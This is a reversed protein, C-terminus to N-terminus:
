VKFRARSRLRVVYTLSSRRINADLSCSIWVGPEVWCSCESLWFWESLKLSSGDSLQSWVVHASSDQLQRWWLIYRMSIIFPVVLDSCLIGHRHTNQRSQYEMEKLTALYSWPWYFSLLCTCQGTTLWYILNAKQLYNQRVNHCSNQLIYCSNNIITVNIWILCHIIFVNVFCRDVHIESWSETLYEM